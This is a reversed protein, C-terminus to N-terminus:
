KSKTAVFDRVILVGHDRLQRAQVELARRAADHDYGNFTTVHHLVSSDFIGDLSADDFCRAAIDGTVFSLNQLTYKKSAIEVM